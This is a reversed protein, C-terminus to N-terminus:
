FWRKFLNLANEYVGLGSPCKQFLPNGDQAIKGDPNKGIRLEPGGKGGMDKYKIAIGASAPPNPHMM